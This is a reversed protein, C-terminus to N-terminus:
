AIVVGYAALWLGTTHLDQTAHAVAGDVADRLSAGSINRGVWWQLVQLAGIILLGDIVVAWGLRRVIRRRDTALAIAGGATVVTGLFAIGGISSITDDLDWVGLRGLRETIDTLSNNLGGSPVNSPAANGPLQL